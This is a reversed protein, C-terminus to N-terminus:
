EMEVILGFSGSYDVGDVTAIVNVNYFGPTNPVTFTDMTVPIFAGPGTMDIYWDDVPVDGNITITISSSVSVSSPPNDFILASLAADTIGNISNIDIYYYPERIINVAYGKTTGNTVKLYFYNNGVSPLSATTNAGGTGSALLPFSDNPGAFIELFAGPDLTTGELTVSSTAYPVNVTMSDSGFGPPTTGNVKFESLATEFSVCQIRITYPTFDRIGDPSQMALSFSYDEGEAAGSITLEMMNPGAQHASVTKGAPVGLLEHRVIFNQPNFLALELKTHAEVIGPPILVIGNSLVVAPTTMEAAARIGTVEVIATNDLFYDAMSNGFFECGPVVFSMFISIFFAFAISSHRKKLFEM